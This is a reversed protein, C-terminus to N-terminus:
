RGSQYKQENKGYSMYYITPYGKVDYTECTKPNKTCDVAGFVVKKDDAFQAAANQYEPKAKKCHGCWPAYFMIIAHKKKKVTSKFSDDGLHVVDSEVETWEKEPPPPPKPDKIYEVIGEANRQFASSADYKQEGDEFYIVTPYGTVKYRNGLEKFQTADVATLKEAAEEDKLISAAQEWEPKLNKCHGCWPAYFFVMVKKNEQIFPDFTADTLHIVDTDGDSWSPEPEKPKPEQPDNLWDVVEQKTHGGSYEFQRKGKDFYLTKPFGTINYTQRISQADKNGEADLGALIVEGKLETAAESFVPKFRKCYGCWPAYFMVLMPKNKKILKNLQKESELHVVDQAGEEEEWPGDSKPDKLFALLSKVSFRRDYISSFEGDKYHQIETPSPKAKQKKCLKKGEKDACNVWALTATGKSKKGTEGFVDFSKSAASESEAFLVLVNTKTRLLKKFAKANDIEQVFKSLEANKKSEVTQIAM